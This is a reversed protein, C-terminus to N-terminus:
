AACPKRVIANLQLGRGLASANRFKWKSLWNRAAVHPQLAIRWLRGRERSRYQRPLVPCGESWAKELKLGCREVVNRLSSRSLYLVHEYNEHLSAWRGAAAEFARANPTSIFIAGGGKLIRSTERLFGRLDYIHEIVDIMMIIDFEESAFGAHELDTRRLDLRYRERGYAVASDAVDIGVLRAPGHPKLTQLLAGTACGIDLVAKGALDFHVVLERHGTVSGNAISRDRIDRYDVGHFFDKGGDFYDDDYYRLLAVANPTPDVFLVGCFPCQRVPLGDGRRTLVDLPPSAGCGPCTDRKVLDDLQCIETV